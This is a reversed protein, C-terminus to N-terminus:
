GAAKKELVIYAIAASSLRHKVGKTEHYLIKSLISQWPSLFRAVIPHKTVDCWSRVALKRICEDFFGTELVSWRGPDILRTRIEEPSYDRCFEETWEEGSDRYRVGVRYPVERWSERTADAAELTIVAIGGSRLVRYIEQMAERDGDEPIHELVCISTVTDFTGDHFPLRRADSQVFDPLSTEHVIHSLKFLGEREGDMCVIHVGRSALFLGFPNEGTGIDLIRQSSRSSIAKCVIQIERTKHYEIAHAGRAIRRDALFRVYQSMRLPQNSECTWREGLAILRSSLSISKRKYLDIIRSTVAKACAKEIALSLLAHGLSRWLVKRYAKKAAPYAQARALWNAARRWDGREQWIQAIRFPIEPNSPNKEFLDLYYELARSRRGCRLELWALHGLIETSHRHAEWLGRAADVRGLLLLRSGEEILHTTDLQSDM